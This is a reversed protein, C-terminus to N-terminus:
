RAPPLLVRIQRVPCGSSPAACGWAPTSRGLYHKETKEMKKKMKGKEEGNEKETKRRGKVQKQNSL